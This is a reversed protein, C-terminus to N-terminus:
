WSIVRENSFINDVIEEYKKEKKSLDIVEIENDKSQINIIQDSLRTPGDNLIHLIKM